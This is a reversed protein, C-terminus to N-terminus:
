MDLKKKEPPKVIKSKTANLYCGGISPLRNRQIFIIPGAEPKTISWSLRLLLAGHLSGIRVQM